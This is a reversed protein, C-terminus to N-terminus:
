CLWSQLSHADSMAVLSRSSAFNPFVSVDHICSFFSDGSIASTLSFKSLGADNASLSFRKGVPPARMVAFRWKKLGHVDGSAALDDLFKETM